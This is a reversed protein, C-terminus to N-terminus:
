TGREMDALVLPVTPEPAPASELASEAEREWISPYPESDLEAVQLQVVKDLSGTELSVGDGPFEPLLASESELPPAQDQSMESSLQLSPPATTRGSLTSMRDEEERAGDGHRDGELVAEALPTAPVTPSQPLPVLAPTLSPLGEDKARPSPPLPVLTPPPAFLGVDIARPSPPLPVGAARTAPSTVSQPAVQTRHSPVFSMAPPPGRRTGTTGGARPEETLDSAPGSSLRRRLRQALARAFQTFRRSRPSKAGDPTVDGSVSLMVPAVDADEPQKSSARSVPYSIPIPIPVPTLGPNAEPTDRPPEAGASRGRRLGSKPARINRLRNISGSRSRSAEAKSTSASAISISTNAGAGVGEVGKSSSPAGGLEEDVQREDVETMAEHVAVGIVLAEDRACLEDLAGRSRMRTLTKAFASSVAKTLTNRRAVITEKQTTLNEEEHHRAAASSFSSTSTLSATSITHTQVSYMPGTSWPVPSTAGSQTSQLDTQVAAAMDSYNGVRSISISGRRRKKEAAVNTLSNSLSSVLPHLPSPHSGAEEELARRESAEEIERFVRELKEDTLAESAESFSHARSLSM